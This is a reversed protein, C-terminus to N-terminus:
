NGFYTVYDQLKQLVLTVNCDLSATNSGATLLALQDGEQLVYSAGGAVNFSQGGSTGFAVTAMSAGQIISTTGSATWRLMWISHNPAGSLGIVSQKAGVLKCPYPVTVLSYTAGTVTAKLAVSVVDKQQSVDMDRNIVAM